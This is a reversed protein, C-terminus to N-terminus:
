IRTNNQILLFSTVNLDVPLDGVDKYTAEQIGFPLRPQEILTLRPILSLISLFQQFRGENAKKPLAGFYSRFIEAWIEDHSACERWEKCVLRAQLIGDIDSSFSLIHILADPCLIPSFLENTIKRRKQKKSISTTTKTTAKCKM